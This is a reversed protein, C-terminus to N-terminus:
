EILLGRPKLHRIPFNHSAQPRPKPMGTILERNRVRVANLLKLNQRLSETLQDIHNQTTPKCTAMGQL